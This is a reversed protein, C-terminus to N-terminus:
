GKEEICIEYLIPGTYNWFVDGDECSSIMVTADMCLFTFISFGMCILIRKTVARETRLTDELTTTPRGVGKATPNQKAAQRM